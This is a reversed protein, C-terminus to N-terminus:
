FDFGVSKLSSGNLDPNGGGVGQCGTPPHNGSQEMEVVDVKPQIKVVSYRDGCYWKWTVIKCLWDKVSNQKRMYM